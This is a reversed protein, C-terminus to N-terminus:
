IAHVVESPRSPMRNILATMREKAGALYELRLPMRDQIRALYGVSFLLKHRAIAELILYTCSQTILRTVSLDECAIQHFGETLSTCVFHILRNAVGDLPGKQAARTFASSYRAQQDDQLDQLDDILQLAVGYSFVSEALDGTLSGSVLTGDVLVSTGGKMFSISLLDDEESDQPVKRLLLGSQQARHIARLSEYVFPFRERPYEQEIMFLLRDVSESIEGGSAPETGNLRHSLWCLFSEINASDVSGGDLLNDTFPYLMSYAFSSPTLSLTQGFLRQISNFVWQNRLAQHVEEMPLSSDFSNAANVFALATSECDKLFDEIEPEVSRFLSKLLAGRAQDRIAARQGHSLREFRENENSLREITREIEREKELQEDRSFFSLDEPFADSSSRWRRISRETWLQLNNQFHIGHQPDPTMPGDHAIPPKERKRKVPSQHEM